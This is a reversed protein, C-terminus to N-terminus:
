VLRTYSDISLIGECYLSRLAQTPMIVDNKGSKDM